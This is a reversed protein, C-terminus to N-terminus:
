KGKWKKLRNISINLCEYFRDIEEFTNYFAPSIRLAAEKGLSRLAPQACHTGTRVAIGAHDLMSGVDFPHLGEVTFSIVGAREKPNGLIEVEPVSRLKELAYALLRTEHEAISQRGMDDLYRLAAHLSIVGVYNPTGAEFREPIAAFGTVDNKVLDVMGGGFRSVALKELCSSKGYLVGIGTLACAKHGSFCYYDCDFEKVNTISHRIGQAGDVLVQAGVAHAASIIEHLPMVTGTLNSVQAIAILKTKHTLLRKLADTDPVGNPCPWVTFKANCKLCLQQWPVFNSHHELESVIIEDSPNVHPQLGAAVMNISDTTGGTFIIESNKQAGLYNQVYERAKEYAISTLRSLQHASRYVNGNATIYHRTIAETVTQPVQITAANDLYILPHGYVAQTLIPFDKRCDTINSM